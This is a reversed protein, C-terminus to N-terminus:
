LSIFTVRGADDITNYTYGIRHLNGFKRFVDFTSHHTIYETDRLNSLYEYEFVQMTKRLHSVMGADWKPTIPQSTAGSIRMNSDPIYSRLNIDLSEGSPAGTPFIYSTETKNNAQFQPAFTINLSSLIYFYNGATDYPTYFTIRPIGFTNSLGALSLFFGSGGSYKLRGSMEMNHIITGDANFNLNFVPFDSFSTKLNWGAATYYYNGCEITVPLSFSANPASPLTSPLHSSSNSYSKEVKCNICLAGDNYGSYIPYLSNITFAKVYNSAYPGGTHSPAPQLIINNSPRTLTMMNDDDTANWGKIDGVMAGGIKNGDSDHTTFDHQILADGIVDGNSDFIKQKEFSINSQTTYGDWLVMRPNSSVYKDYNWTIFDEEISALATDEKLKVNVSVDKYPKINWTKDNDSMQTFAQSISLSTFTLSLPTVPQNAEIQQLQSYTYYNATGQPHQSYILIGSVELEMNCGYCLLVDNIADFWSEGYDKHSDSIWWSRCIRNELIGTINSDVWVTFNDLGVQSMAEMLYYGFTHPTADGNNEVYVEQLMSLLGRVPIDIVFPPNSFPRNITGCSVYGLFKRSANLLACEVQIGFPDDPIIGFTGGNQSVFRMVATKQRIGITFSTDSDVEIEFPNPAPTLQQVISTQTTSRVTVVYNRDHLSKYSITAIDYYTNNM